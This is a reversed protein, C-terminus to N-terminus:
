KKSMWREKTYKCCRKLSQVRGANEPLLSIIQCWSGRGGNAPLFGLEVLYAKRRIVSPSKPGWFTTKFLFPVMSIAWFILLQLCHM